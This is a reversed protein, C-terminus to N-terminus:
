EPSKTQSAYRYAVSDARRASSPTGPRSHRYQSAERSRHADMALLTDDEVISEAEQKSAEGGMLSEEIAQGRVWTRDCTLM